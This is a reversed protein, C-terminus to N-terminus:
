IFVRFRNPVLFSDFLRLFSVFYVSFTSLLFVSDISVLFETRKEHSASVHFQWSTDLLIGITIVLVSYSDLSIALIHKNCVDSTMPHCAVCYQLRMVFCFALFKLRSLENHESHRALRMFFTQCAREILTDPSAQSCALSPLLFSAFICINFIPNACICKVAQM